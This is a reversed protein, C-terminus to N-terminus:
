SDHRRDLGEKLLTLREVLDEYLIRMFNRTERESADIRAGLDQRTAAFGDAMEQRVDAFGGAMERRVASFELKTWDRFHLFETRFTSVDAQLVEVRVELRGLRGDLVEVRDHLRDVKAGIGDPGNVTNELMEVRKALGGDGM